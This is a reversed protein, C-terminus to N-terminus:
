FNLRFNLRFTRVGSLTTTKKYHASYIRTGDTTNEDSPYWFGSDNQTIYRYKNGLANIIDVALLLRGFGGMKLEKEIRIDLNDYSKNRRTGPEELLDTMYTGYVNEETTWSSPPYITVSRAWPTGSMHSYFFSLIFNLYNSDIYLFEYM